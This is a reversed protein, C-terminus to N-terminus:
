ESKLPQGDVVYRASVRGSHIAPHFFQGCGSLEIAMSDWELPPPLTPKGASSVVEVDAVTKPGGGTNVEVPVLGMIPLKDNFRVTQLWNITM